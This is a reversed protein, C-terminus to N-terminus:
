NGALQALASTPWDVEVSTGDGHRSYITLRGGIAEARESMSAVGLGTQEATSRTHRSVDFGTGNDRITLRIGFDTKQLFYCVRSAAAHKAINNFAEQTIRYIVVKLTLPINDEEIEYRKVLHVDPHAHLFERCFVDLKDLIGANETIRLPRLDLAIRHLEALTEQINEIAAQLVHTQTEQQGGNWAKLDVELRFKLACLRQGIGDHLEAAIRKREAERTAILANTIGHTTTAVNVRKQANNSGPM